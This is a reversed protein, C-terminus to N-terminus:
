LSQAANPCEFTKYIFKGIITSFSNSTVLIGRQEAFLIVSSSRDEIATNTIILATMVGVDAVVIM